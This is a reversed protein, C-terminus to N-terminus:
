EGGTLKSQEGIKDRPIYNELVSLEDLGDKPAMGLIDRVENGTVIGKDSLGGFVDYITKIDWDLLSRYNFRLYMKPSLILKKTLEQQIGICIPRVKNLVFSNWADTNYEGVGVIFPPVGVISAVTRKDIQVMDSIALDSLSLPRVEQVQFQEAPIIWPEGAEGTELYDERLKKRGEPGSFEEVMADVKVILSPKWKSEMFGKETAAAQKLNAAVDKLTTKLGQGKWPYYKDPNYVFHLMNEPDHAKGDILIKYDRFGVNQLSVRSAAIPELSRIIGDWTHPWVISNGEGYLLLNMVINEMWTSRTMNYMPNIDIARSLENVVRIDGRETNSMLHITLSGILEAITRCATMIEPNQDLSTYGPICIADDGSIFFGVKQQNNRKETKKATKRKKSM